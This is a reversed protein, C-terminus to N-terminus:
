RAQLEIIIQKDSHPDVRDVWYTGDPDLVLSTKGCTLYFDSLDTTSLIAGSASYCVNQAIMFDNCGWVCIEDHSGGDGRISYYSVRHPTFQSPLELSIPDIIQATNPSQTVIAAQATTGPIAAVSMATGPYSATQAAGGFMVDLKRLTAGGDFDGFWYLRTSIPDVDLQAVHGPTTFTRTPAGNPGYEQTIGADCPTAYLKNGGSYVALGPDFGTPRAVSTLSTGSIIDIAGSSAACDGITAYATHSNKDVAINVPYGGADLTAISTLAQTDIIQINGTSPGTSVAVYLRNGFFDRAMGTVVGGADFTALITYGADVGADTSTGGGSGGSGGSGGGINGGGSGGNGGGVNGGGAGGAGGGSAGGSGGGSGGNNGSSCSVALVSVVLGIAIRM